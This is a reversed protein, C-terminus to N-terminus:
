KFAPKERETQLQIIQKESIFRRRSRAVSRFSHRACIPYTLNLLGLSFQYNLLGLSFQNDVSRFRERLGTYRMKNYRFSYFFFQGFNPFFSSQLVRSVRPFKRSDQMKQFYEYESDHVVQPQHLGKTPVQFM